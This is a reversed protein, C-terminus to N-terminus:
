VGKQRRVQALLAQYVDYVDSPSDIKKGSYKELYNILYANNGRFNKQFGKSQLVENYEREYAACPVDWMYLLQQFSLVFTFEYILISM